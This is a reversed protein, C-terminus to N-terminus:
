CMYALEVGNPVRDQHVAVRYDVFSRPSGLLGDRHSIDIIANDLLRPPTSFDLLRHAPACGLM